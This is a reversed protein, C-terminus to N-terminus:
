PHFIKWGHSEVLWGTEDLPTEEFTLNKGEGTWNIGDLM